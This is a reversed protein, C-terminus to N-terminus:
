SIVGLKELAAFIGDENNSSTVMNAAKKVAEDANAMAVGMGATQLMPIDNESDGFSISNSIQISYINCIDRLGKGKNISSPIIELYFPATRVVTLGKPLYAAIKAQIPLIIEPDLSMLIKVPSFSLFDALNKVEKCTMQNNWCEYEVKYGNKDTVYFIKGDDLIVTVPLTELFRLIRRTEEIDMVTESLVNGKCDTIRGGNYSMLIGNHKSMELEDRLKFLGPSPRASALVLRLGKEQATFLANRTAPTLKKEDNTLTGDIDLAILQYNM